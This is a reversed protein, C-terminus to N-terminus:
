RPRADEPQRRRDEENGPPQPGRTTLPMAEQTPRGNAYGNRGDNFPNIYVRFKDDSRLTSGHILKNAVIKSPDEYFMMASFYLFDKDYLIRVVTKESPEAYEIPDTQHLDTILAGTSWVDDMVGDIIPPTNTHVMELTKDRGSRSDDSPVEQAVSFSSSSLLAIAIFFSTHKCRTM